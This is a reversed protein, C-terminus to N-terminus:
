RVKDAKRTPSVTHPVDLLSAQNAPPEEGEVKDMGEKQIRFNRESVYGFDLVKQSLRRAAIEAYKEEIEIGIARRGLDKAARPTTGSGMFPDCIVDPELSWCKIFAAAMDYPMVCPHGELAEPRVHPWVSRCWRAKTMNDLEPYDYAGPRGGYKRAFLLNSHHVLLAPSGPACTLRSADGSWRGRDWVGSAKFIMGCEILRLIIKAHTGMCSQEKQGPLAHPHEPSIHMDQVECCFWGGPRLAEAARAVWSSTFLDFDRLTRWNTKEYEMGANFPPSTVVQGINELQPLIERCDSNWILCSEDEYYPPVTVRSKFRAAWNESNESTNTSAPEVREPVVDTSTFITGQTPTDKRASNNQEDGRLREQLPPPSTKGESNELSNSGETQPCIADDAFSSSTQQRTIPHTGMLTIGKPDRVAACYARALRPIYAFHERGAAEPASTQVRGHPTIREARRPWASPSM